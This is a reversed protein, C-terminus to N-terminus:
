QGIATAKTLQIRAKGKKKSGGTKFSARLELVPQGDVSKLLPKKKCHMM